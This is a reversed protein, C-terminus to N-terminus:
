GDAAQRSLLPLKKRARGALDLDLEHRGRVSPSDGIQDLGMGVKTETAGVRAQDTESFTQVGRHDRREITPVEADNSRIMDGGELQDRSSPTRACRMALSCAPFVLGAARTRGRGSARSDSTSREGEPPPEPRGIPGM